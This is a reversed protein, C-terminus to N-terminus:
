PDQTFDRHGNTAELRATPLASMIRHGYQERLFPAVRIAFQEDRTRTRLMSNGSKFASQAAHLTKTRTPV